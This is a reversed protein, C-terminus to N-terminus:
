SLWLPIVSTNESSKLRNKVVEKLTQYPLKNSYSIDDVIRGEDIILIRECLSQMAELNHSTIFLTKSGRFSILIKLIKELSLFDLHIFPEDMILVEPNHILSAAFSIKVKDGSSYNIIKGRNFNQISLLDLIEKIRSECNNSPIGQFRCIFKLYEAPTFENILIPDSLFVGIKSRFSVYFPTVQKNFIKISGNDYPILNCLSKITTTKGSGNNGILAVFEKSKISFSLDNLAIQKGFAKKVDKFEIIIDNM